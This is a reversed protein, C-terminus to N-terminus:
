RCRCGSVSNRPLGSSEGAVPRLCSIVGAAARRARAPLPAAAPRGRPSRCSAASASDCGARAALSCRRRRRLHHRRRAHLELHQLDRHRHLHVHRLDHHAQGVFEIDTSSCSRQIAGSPSSIRASTVSRTSCASNCPTAPRQPQPRDDTAPAARRAASRNSARARPWRAPATTAAAGAAARPAASGPWSRAARRPRRRPAPQRGDHATRAAPRHSRARASPPPWRRCARRATSPPTAGRPRSACRAAAPLAALRQRVGDAAQANGAAQYVDLAREYFERAAAANGRAAENEAADILDLAVRDSLGLKRDIALAQALAAAAADGQGLQRQARGSLRLANAREASQEDAQAAARTAWQLAGNADGRQLAVHARLNSLTADLPCPTRLRSTRPEAWTLAADLDPQTSTCCRRARRRARWWRPVTASHRPSSAISAPWARRGPRRQRRAGAGPQAVDRRRSRLGGGVRRGGARARVACAGAGCRRAGLRACRGAGAHQRKAAGPEAAAAHQRLGGAAHGRGAPEGSRHM